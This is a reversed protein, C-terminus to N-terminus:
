VEPSRQTPLDHTGRSGTDQLQLFRALLPPFSPCRVAGHVYCRLAEHSGALLELPGLVRMAGSLVADELTLRAELLARLARKRTSLSIAASGQDPGVRARPGTFSVQFREADVEFSVAVGRLRACLRAYAGPQERSLVELSESVLGAV